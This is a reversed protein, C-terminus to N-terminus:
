SATFRMRRCENNWGFVANRGMRACEFAGLDLLFKAAESGAPTEMWIVPQNRELTKVGGKLVDLESDQVDIKIFDVPDMNYADLPHVKVDEGETLSGSGSNMPNVIRWGSNGVEAGLAVNIAVSKRVNKRYHEILEKSPEFGFVSDFIRELQISILGVHAGIDLATRRRNKPTYCLAMLLPIAQYPQTVNFHVDWEPISIKTPWEVVLMSM